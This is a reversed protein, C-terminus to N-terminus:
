AWCSCGSPRKQVPNSKLRKEGRLEVLGEELRKRYIPDYLTQLQVAYHGPLVDGSGGAPPRSSWPSCISTASAM